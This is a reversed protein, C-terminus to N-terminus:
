ADLFFRAVKSLGFIGIGSCLLSVSVEIDQLTQTWKYKDLDCGNGSNPKLKGKESEDEEEEVPEAASSKKDDIEKQLREAEVDTLETIEAPKVSEEKQQQEVLKAKKAQEKERKAKLEAEHQACSIEEQRRFTNMVLKEWDGRSGGTFFDTKRGLFSVFTDLLQHAGEPHHQAITLFLSDFQETKNTDGSM